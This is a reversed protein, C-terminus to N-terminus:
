TDLLVEGNMALLYMGSWTQRPLPRDRLARVFADVKGETLATAHALIRLADISSALERNASQALITASRLIDDQMNQRQRRAQDLIQYSMLGALPVTALLIMIVLYSRLSASPWHPALRQLFTRRPDFTAKMDTSHLM